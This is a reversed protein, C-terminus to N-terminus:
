ACLLLRHREDAEQVGLRSGTVRMEGGGELLAQIFGPKYLALVNRDFIPPRILVEIAKRFKGGVKYAMLWRYQNPSAAGMSCGDSRCLYNRDDSREPTIGYLKTEDGAEIV